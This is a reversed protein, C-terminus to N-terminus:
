AAEYTIMLTVQDSAAFAAIPNDDKLYNANNHMVVRCKDNGTDTAHAIVVTGTYNTVGADIIAAVGIAQFLNGPDRATVPLSITLGDSSLNTTSGGLINLRATILKGAQAYAGVMSGNSIAAGTGGLTPTWSAWATHFLDYLYTTNDRVYTNAWTATGADGPSITPPTTWSPM